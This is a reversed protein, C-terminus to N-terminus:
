IPQRDIGAAANENNILSDFGTLQTGKIQNQM